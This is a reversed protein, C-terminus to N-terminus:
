KKWAGPVIGENIGVQGQLEARDDPPSLTEVINNGNDVAVQDEVHSTLLISYKDIAFHDRFDKGGLNGDSHMLVVVDHSVIEYMVTLLSFRRMALNGSELPYDTYRLLPTNMDDDYTTWGNSAHRNVSITRTTLMVPM